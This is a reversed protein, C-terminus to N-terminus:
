IEGGFSTAQSYKNIAIWRARRMRRRRRRRAYKHRFAALRGVDLLDIPM